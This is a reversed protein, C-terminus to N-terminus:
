DELFTHRYREFGPGQDLGFSAADYHHAGVGDQRSTNAEAAAQDLVAPPVPRDLQQYLSTIAAAPDSVIRVHQLHAVRLNDLTGAETHDVLRDLSRGYLDHHYRGIAFPDVNDSFASRLTAILSSVSALMPAPDRHTFVLTADPYTAILEPLGQLHVPSKLVWRRKPMHQQLLQLVQRHALYAPTMDCRQLWDVYSPVHYRSVFEESRFSFAMASLCEKPMRASYSHITNLGQAVSQPFVLETAMQEIRPDTDFTEPTPAPVPMLLEWGQPARLTPDAALMRHVVTTGSRPLGVVIIPAEIPDLDASADDLQLRVSLLRELYRQTAWRGLPTLDAEDELASCVVELPEVWDADGLSFRTDSVQNLKALLTHADFPEPSPAFEPLEGRNAARVWDAQPGPQWTM